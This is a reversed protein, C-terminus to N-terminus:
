GQAVPLDAEWFEGLALCKEWPSKASAPLSAMGAKRLVRNKWCLPEGAPLLAAYTQPETRLWRQREALVEESRATPAFFEAPAGREFRLQFKYDDDPFLEALTM